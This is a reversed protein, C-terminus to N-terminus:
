SVHILSAFDFLKLPVHGSDRCIVVGNLEFNATVVVSLPVVILIALGAPVKLFLNRRGHGKFLM